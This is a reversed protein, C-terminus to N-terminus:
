RLGVNVRCRQGAPAFIAPCTTREVGGLLTHRVDREENRSRARDNAATEPDDSLSRRSDVVTFLQRPCTLCQGM